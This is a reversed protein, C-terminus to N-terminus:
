RIICLSDIWLYQLGLSRTIMVADQFTKQLNALHILNKHSVLTPITTTLLQHKGWCHNLAAYNGRQGCQEFLKLESTSSGVDLVRTPLKAIASQRCQPHQERCEKICKRALTM